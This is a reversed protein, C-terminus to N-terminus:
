PLLIRFVTPLLSTAIGRALSASSLADKFGGRRAQIEGVLQVGFWILPVLSSFNLIHLASGSLDTVSLRAALPQQYLLAISVLVAVAATARFGDWFAGISRSLFAKFRKFNM